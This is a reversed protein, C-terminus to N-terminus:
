IHILSLIYPVSVLDGEKLIPNDNLSGTNIYNVLSVIINNESKRKILIEKENAYRHLGGIVEIAEDLRTLASIKAFGPNNVAGTIQVKFTRINILSIDIRANQFTESIRHKLIDIATILILGSIKESGVGPILLDGTPGVTVNFYMNEM